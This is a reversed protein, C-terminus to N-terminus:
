METRREEQPEDIAEALKALDKKLFQPIDEGEGRTEGNGNSHRHQENRIQEDHKRVIPGTAAFRRSESIGSNMMEAAARLRTELSSAYKIYRDLSAVADDHQQKFFDRESNAQHLESRLTRNEAESAELAHKMQNFNSLAEILPNDREIAPLPAQARPTPSLRHLLSM